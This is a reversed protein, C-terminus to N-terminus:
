IFSVSKGVFAGYGKVAICNPLDYVPVTTHEVGEILVKSWMKEPLKSDLMLVTNEGARLAKVIKSLSIM